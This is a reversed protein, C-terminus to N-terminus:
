VVIQMVVANRENYSKLEDLYTQKLQEAKDLYTQKKDSNLEKWCRSQERSLGVLDTTKQVGSNVFDNCFLMYGNKPRKPANPDKIKRIKIPKSGLIAVVNRDIIDPDTEKYVSTMLAVLKERLFKYMSDLQKTAFKHTTHSAWMQPPPVGVLTTSNNTTSKTHKTVTEAETTVKTTTNALSVKTKAKTKRRKNRSVVVPTAASEDSKSLKKSEVTKKKSTVKKVKKKKTKGKKKTAATKIVINDTNSTTNVNCSTSEDSATNVGKKTM